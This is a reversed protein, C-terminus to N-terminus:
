LIELDLTNEFKQESGTLERSEYSIESSFQLGDLYFITIM